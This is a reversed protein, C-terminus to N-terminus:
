LSMILSDWLGEDLQDSIGLKNDSLDEFVRKALVPLLRHGLEALDGEVNFLVGGGGLV